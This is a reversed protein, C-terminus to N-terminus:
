RKQSVDKAYHRNRREPNASGPPRPRRETLSVFRVAGDHMM